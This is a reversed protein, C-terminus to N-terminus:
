MVTVALELRSQLKLGHHLMLGCLIITAFGFGAYASSPVAVVACASTCDSRRQPRPDRYILFPVIHLLCVPRLSCFRIIVRGFSLTEWRVLRGLTGGVVIAHRFSLVSPAAIDSSFGQNVPRESLQSLACWGGGATAGTSRLRGESPVCFGGPRSKVYIADRLQRLVEPSSSRPNAMIANKADGEPLRSGERNAARVGARM